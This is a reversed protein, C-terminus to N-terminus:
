PTSTLLDHFLQTTEDNDFSRFTKHFKQRAEEQKQFLTAMLGGMSASCLNGNSNIPKSVISNQLFQLQVAFDVFDGLNEQLEKMQRIVPTITKQPFISSFFELLYRLKKCDIRLAHLEPDTTEPSIQRGHRIVKKWAKKITDLAVAMTSHSANPAKEPDPLSQRHVVKEWEELFSQYDSSLLYSCFQNHLAKRSTAIDSFFLKLPPQLFTPLYHFYTEQRLLYVDSDRLENTKKGLEKCANLFYTTEQPDYIGKLQKLLSRTRRLAVRYDHLFESDINKRIGFENQHLISLTFQLLRQTSEHIPADADLTLHIKSSYGQVNQGATAMILLFLEKFDLASGLSNHHALKEVEEQYGKLPILSYLSTFPEQNKNEALSLSTSTLIGITKENNDLIHYSNILTNISCLRIFSRIGSYSALRNKLKGPPLDNHSFFSPNQSFSISATEHGTNLNILSLNKKNKVIVVEKEFANWEFTDYFDLRDKKSSLPNLQWGSLLAKEMMEGSTAQPHAIFFITKTTIHM